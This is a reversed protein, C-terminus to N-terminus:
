RLAACARIRTDAYRAFVEGHVNHLALEVRYPTGYNRDLMRVVHYGIPRIGKPHVYVVFGRFFPDALTMRMSRVMAREDDDLRDLGRGELLLREFGRAGRDGLQQASKWLALIAANYHAFGGRARLAQAAADDVSHVVFNQAQNSTDSLASPDIAYLFGPLGGFAGAGLASAQKALGDRELEGRHKGLLISNSRQLKNFTGIVIEDRAFADDFSEGFLEALTAYQAVQRGVGCDSRARGTTFQAIATSNSQRPEYWRGFPDRRTWADGPLKIWGLQLGSFRYGRNAALKETARRAAAGYRRSFALRTEPAMLAAPDDAPAGLEDLFSLTCARIRGDDRAAEVLPDIPSAAALPAISILCGFVCSTVRRARASRFGDPRWWM